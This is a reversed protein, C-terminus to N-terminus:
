MEALADRADQAEMGAAEALDVVASRLVLILAQAHWYEEGIPGPSTRAAVSRLLERAVKPDQGLLLANGLELSALAFEDLLDAVFASRATVPTSSARRAVVRVSRIARDVLVMTRNLSALESRYKRASAAIQATEIAADIESQFDDIVGQSARGRNVAFSSDEPNGSRLAAATLELTRALQVTAAQATARLNHRPDIPTVAAVITAVVAGVLADTWRSFGGEFQSGLAAAPLGVMVIGQVAAQSALLAGSDIYRAMMVACFLVFGIQWPGAGVWIAFTEGLAVGLSVGIGMEAVRRVSREHTYGLCAWVAVPAFFPFEHGLVLGAAWFSIGAAVSAILLPVFARRMRAFGQRNRIRIRKRTREVVTTIRRQPM